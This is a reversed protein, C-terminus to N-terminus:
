PDPCDSTSVFATKNTIASRAGTGTRSAQANVKWSPFNKRRRISGRGVRELSNQLSEQPTKPQWLAM